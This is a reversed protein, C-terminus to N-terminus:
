KDKLELEQIKQPKAKGKYLNLHTALIDRMVLTPTWGWDKARKQIRKDAKKQIWYTRKIFNSKKRKAM